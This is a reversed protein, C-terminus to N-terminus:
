ITRGTRMRARTCRQIRGVIGGTDLLGDGTAIPQSVITGELLMRAALSVALQTRGSVDGQRLLVTWRM